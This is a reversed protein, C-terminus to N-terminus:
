VGATFVDLLLSWKSNTQLVALGVSCVALFSFRIQHHMSSHYEKSLPSLGYFYM